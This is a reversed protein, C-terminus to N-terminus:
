IAKNRNIEKVNVGSDKIIQTIEEDNLEQAEKLKLHVVKKDMDVEVIDVKQTAKMKKEIGQACFSCVMGEVDILLDYGEKVKASSVTSSEAQSKKPDSKKSPKNKATLEKKAHDVHNHALSKEFPCAGLVLALATLTVFQKSKVAGTKNKIKNKM